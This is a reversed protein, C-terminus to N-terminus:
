FPEPASESNTKVRMEDSFRKVSKPIRELLAGFKEIKTVLLHLGSQAAQTTKDDTQGM